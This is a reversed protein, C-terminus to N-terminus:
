QTRQPQPPRKRIPAWNGPSRRCHAAESRIYDSCGPYSRREAALAEFHTLQLQLVIVLDPIQVGQESRQVHWNLRLHENKGLGAQLSVPDRRACRSSNIEVVVHIDTKTMRAVNQFYRCDVRLETSHKVREILLVCILSMQEPLGLIAQHAVTRRTGFPHRPM